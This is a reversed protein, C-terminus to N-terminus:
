VKNKINEVLHQWYAKSMKQMFRSQKEFNRCGSCILLHLRIAVRENIVLHTELGKCILASIERCKM